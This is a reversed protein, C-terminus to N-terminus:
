HFFPNEVKGIDRYKAPLTLPNVGLSELCNLHDKYTNLCYTEKLADLGGDVVIQLDNCLKRKKAPKLNSAQIIAVAAEMTYFDGKPFIPKADRLYKEQMGLCVWNSWVPQLGYYRKMHKIHGNLCQVEQRCIDEEWAKPKKHKDRREKTKDYVQAHRSKCVYYVSGPFVDKQMRMARQPLGSLLDIVAERTNESLLVNYDYDIRNVNLDNVTLSVTGLWDNVVATMKEVDSDSLNQVELLEHCSIKVWLCILPSRPIRKMWVTCGIPPATFLLSKYNPALEDDADFTKCLCITDM